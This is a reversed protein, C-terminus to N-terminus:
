VSARTATEVFNRLLTMGHRHSKEPHFQTGFVNGRRVAAAFRYGHTCWAAVAGPDDCVLHYSHVFYFRTDRGSLDRFLPDEIPEVENWGMHPIALRTEPPLAFRKVDADIWGLGPDTGEESGRAMLQMGLCIGLVPTGDRVVRDTLVDVLARSRLNRMGEDFHGVGPLVLASAEAIERADSTVRSRAGVRKLMNAVSGLNGLGYDVITIV